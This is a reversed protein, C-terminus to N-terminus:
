LALLALGRRDHVLYVILVTFLFKLVLFKNVLVIFIGLPITKISFKLENTQSIELIAALGHSLVTM